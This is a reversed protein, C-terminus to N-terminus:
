ELYLDQLHRKDNHTLQLANALFNDFSGYIKEATDFTAQLYERQVCMAIKLASVEAESVGSKYAAAYERENAERRAFNTELYDDFIDERSVGLITLIIAAAIGTRDKGAFCHFLTAGEDLDLLLDIFERYGRCATKDAAVTSYLRLMYSQMTDVTAKRMFADHSMDNEGTDALIDVLNNRVNEIVDDPSQLAERKSRFDVITRLKYDQVLEIKDSPSLNVPEASRLLRCRKVIRGDAGVYGGIDRFNTLTKM